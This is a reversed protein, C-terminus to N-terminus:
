STAVVFSEFSSVTPYFSLEKFAWPQGKYPYMIDSRDVSWGELLDGFVCRAVEEQPDVFVLPLVADGRACTNDKVVQPNAFGLHAEAAM